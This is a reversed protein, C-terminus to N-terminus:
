AIFVGEGGAYIAEALEPRNAIVARQNISGKDTVEGRDMSPEDPMFVMRKVRSASGTAAGAFAALKDHLAERVQPAALLVALAADAGLEPALGRLAAMDPLVIAGLYDQGEGLIVADRILGGFANVMGARLAGVAVWTGTNLKFNEATRGDFFFGRTLDDPDAPRLADGLCYFGEDDFMEASKAPDGYYGPSISPSKIRAELKGGNPVLKLKVGRAPVGINGSQAHQEACQLAFPGTETAGLGTTLLVERGISARSHALLADWTHQAMGAGAYMMMDLKAFFKDRLGSDADFARVLAEYGAPVNFYWTPSIEALNRLTEAMGAPTPKGEDIYFTGGHYLAMGSVKNGSATHNWPAWDVFVPPKDRLFRFCDEVLAQNSCIMAQSNIVAKPSGTSGSTFLYKAVTQPTLAAFAAEATEDAKTAVLDDFVLAGKPANVSCLVAHDGGSIAGLARAYAAGDRAFVIGPKLLAYIDKVKAHDSSVLSYATSLPAFPVGVYQCALGLLAHDLSNESLILVPRDPGLGRALLATGLSRVIALTQAFSVRRWDGGDVRQALYPADPREKAWHVLRDPMARVVPVDGAVQEMYIVGDERRDVTFEPAWFAPASTTDQMM